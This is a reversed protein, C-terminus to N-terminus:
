SLNHINLEIKKRRYGLLDFDRGYTSEMLEQCQISWVIEHPHSVNVHCDGFDNEIHIQAAIQAAICNIGDEYKFVTLESALFERQPRLHNDLYYSDRKYKSLVFDLWRPFDISSAKDASMLDVRWRYESEVRSYPNRVVTFAFDWKRNPFLHNIDRYTLHQPNCRLAPPQLLGSLGAPGKKGLWQALSAGGTKPVHVFLIEAGAIKFIPM